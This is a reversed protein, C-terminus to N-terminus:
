EDNFAVTTVEGFIELLDNFVFEPDAGQGTTAGADVATLGDLLSRAYEYDPFARLASKLARIAEARRGEKLHILALNTHALHVRPLPFTDLRLSRELNKRARAHDGQIAYAAGLNTYLAPNFPEYPGGQEFTAVADSLRGSRVYALGLAVYPDGQTPALQVARELTRIAEPYEGMQILITGLRYRAVWSTPARRVLERLNERAEPLRGARRFIEGIQRLGNFDLPSIDGARRFEAFAREGYEAASRRIRSLYERWAGSDVGPPPPSESAELDAVTLRDSLLKYLLALQNHPHFLGPQLRNLEDYTDVAAGELGAARYANALFFWANLEGPALSVATRLAEVAALPQGVRLRVRGLYYHALVFGPDVRTAQELHEIAPGMRGYSIYIAGLAVRASVHRPHSDLVEELTAISADLNRLGLQALALHL